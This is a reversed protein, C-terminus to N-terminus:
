RRQKELASRDTVYPVSASIVSHRLSDPPHLGGRLTLPIAYTISKELQQPRVTVQQLRLLVKEHRTSMVAITSLMSCQVDLYCANYCTSCMQWVLSAIVFCKVTDLCAAQSCDHRLPKLGRHSYGFSGVNVQKAFTLEIFVANGISCPLQVNM